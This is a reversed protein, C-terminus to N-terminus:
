SVNEKSKRSITKEQKYKNVWRALSPKTCQYIKCVDSLSKNKNQIYYRVASLKFDNSKHRTM